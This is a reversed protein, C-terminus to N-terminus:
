HPAYLNITRYVIDKDADGVLGYHLRFFKRNPSAGDCSAVAVWLKCTVESLCVAKWFIPVLQHPTVGATGFNALPFKLDTGLGRVFLVLVHTALHDAETM